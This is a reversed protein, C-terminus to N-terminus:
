FFINDRIGGASAPPLSSGALLRSFPICGAHNIVGHIVITERIPCPIVPAKQTPEPDSYSWSLM